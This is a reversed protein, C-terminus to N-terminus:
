PARRGIRDLGSEIDALRECYKWLADLEAGKLAHAVANGRLDFVRACHIPALKIGSLTEPDDPNTLAAEGVLRSEIDAIDREVAARYLWLAAGLAAAGVLLAAAIGARKM